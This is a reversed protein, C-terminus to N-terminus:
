FSPATASNKRWGSLRPKFIPLFAPNQANVKNTNMTVVAVHDHRREIMWSVIPYEEPTRPTIVWDWSDALHCTPRKLRNYEAGKCRFGM